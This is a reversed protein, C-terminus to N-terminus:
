VPDAENTQRRAIAEDIAVALADVKTVRRNDPSMLAALTGLKDAIHDRKRAPIYDFSARSPRPKTAPQNM